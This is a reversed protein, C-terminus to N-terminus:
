THATRDSVLGAIARYTDPLAERRHTWRTLQKCRLDGEEVGAADVDEDVGVLRDGGGAAPEAQGCGGLGDLADQYEDADVLDDVAAVGEVV